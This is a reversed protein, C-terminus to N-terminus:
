VHVRVCLHIYTDKSINESLNNFQLFYHIEVVFGILFSFPFEFSM